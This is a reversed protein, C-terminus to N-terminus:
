TKKKETKTEFWYYFLFFFNICIRETCYADFCNYNMWDIEIYKTNWTRACLMAEFSLFFFFLSLFRTCKNKSDIIEFTFNLSGVVTGMFYEILSVSINLRDWERTCNHTNRARHMRFKSFSHISGALHRVNTTWKKLEDKTGCTRHTYKYFIMIVHTNTFKENIFMFISYFCSFIYTHFSCVFLHEFLHTLPYNSAIHGM